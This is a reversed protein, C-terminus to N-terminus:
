RGDGEFIMEMAVGEVECRMPAQPKRVRVLARTAPTNGILHEGIRAALTEILDHRERTALEHVESALRDYDVAQELDDAAVAASADYELELDILFDQGREKEQPTCGHYAFVKIGSIVIRAIEALSM